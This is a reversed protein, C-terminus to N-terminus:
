AAAGAAAAGWACFIRECAALCRQRQSLLGVFYSDPQDVTLASPLLGSYDTFMEDFDFM